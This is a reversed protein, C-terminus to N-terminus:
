MMIDQVEVKVPIDTKTEDNQVVTTEQDDPETKVTETHTQM